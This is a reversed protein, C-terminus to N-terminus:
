EFRMQEKIEIVTDIPSKSSIIASAIAVGNIGTKCIDRVNSANIGGGAYLKHQSLSVAQELGHLGLPAVANIVNPTNFIPAVALYDLDLNNAQEVQELNNVTLGVKKNYGVLKRVVEYPMDRLSIHVGDADIALAMDVREDIILPVNYPALAKKLRLGVNFLERPTCEKERLLVMTVGDEVAEVVLDELKRGLALSHHALSRNTVLCLDCNRTNM